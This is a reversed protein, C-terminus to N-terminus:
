ILQYNIVIQSRKWLQSIWEKYLQDKKEELLRKYIEQKVESFSLKEPATREVVKLIHYGFATKIPKTIKPPKLKFIVDEIARPLQGREVWGLDGGKKAEPSQSYERALESFDAGKKLRRWLSNALKEDSVLIQKVRVREPAVFEDRHSQYYSKLEDESVEVQYRLVVDVTKKILLLARFQEKWEKENLGLENLTQLFDARDLDLLQGLEKELEQDSLKIKLREAEKLILRQTIMEELCKLRLRYDFDEDGSPEGWVAKLRKQFENFYIPEDNVWAIVEGSRHHSCFEGMLSLMIFAFILRKSKM